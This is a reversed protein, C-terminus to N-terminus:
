EKMITNYYEITFELGKELNVQPKWSLLNFAESNDCSSRQMETLRQLTQDKKVPIDAQMKQLILKVLDIVKIEQEGGVAIAHESIIDKNELIAVYANVADSIYLPARTQDGGMITIEPKKKKVCEIIYTIINFAQGPGYIITPQLCATKFHHMKGYLRSYLFDANKAIAYSSLPEVKLRSNYPLNTDGYVKSTSGYVFLEPKACGAFAELINLTLQNQRVGKLAQAYGEQADPHCALHYIIQPSFDKIVSRTQEVDFLDVSSFSFHNSEQVTLKGLHTDIGLVKAGKEVLEKTLHSGIFGGAGTVAVAINKLTMRKTNEFMNDM